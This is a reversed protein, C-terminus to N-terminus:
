THPLHSLVQPCNGGQQRPLIPSKYVCVSCTKLKDFPTHKAGDIESNPTRTAVTEARENASIDVYVFVFTTDLKNEQEERKM